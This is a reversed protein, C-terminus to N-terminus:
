WGLLGQADPRCNKLGKWNYCGPACVGIFKYINRTLVKHFSAVSPWYSLLLLSWVIEPKSVAVLCSPRCPLVIAWGIRGVFPLFYGPDREPTRLQLSAMVSPVMLPALVSFSHLRHDLTSCWDVQNMPLYPRNWRSTHSMQLSFKKINKKYEPCAQVLVM